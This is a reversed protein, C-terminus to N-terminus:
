QIDLPFSVRFISDEGTKPRGSVIFSVKDPPCYVASVSPYELTPVFNRVEAFIPNNLVDRGDISLNTLSANRHPDTQLQVFVLHNNCVASFQSTLQTPQPDPGVTITQPPTTQGLLLAAGLLILKSM